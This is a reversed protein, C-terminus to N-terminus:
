VAVQAGLEVVRGPPIHFFDTPNAANRMLFIFLKDQWLPMGQRASPILSRRGLFFSTSMIDFKLGSKRFLGLAQSVNQTEMFGFRMELLTFRDSLPQMSVRESKPVKPTNATRITLIFNQNHLVHNHKINHLLAAPTSEPDSTLFVATGPVAVPAHESKREISKIFSALPIDIHRTKAHLIQTGRRWTWMIIIFTAAILVPVYGGDHIKLMNAGLFIFELAFLPVLVAAAALASWNWRMRLFEFSLVTTVVMAGTVSIGYATALSESSGFVFVLAVLAIKWWDGWFQVLAVGTALIFGSFSGLYPIFNLIGAALGILLGYNLGIAMLITSYFTALLAGVIVQGRVFGTLVDDIDRAMESQLAHVVEATM